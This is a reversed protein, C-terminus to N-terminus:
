RARRKFVAGLLAKEHDAINGADLYTAPGAYEWGDEGLQAFSAIKAKEVGLEVFRIIQKGEERAVMLAGCRYEWKVAGAREEDQAARAAAPRLAQAGGVGIALGLALVIAQKVGM